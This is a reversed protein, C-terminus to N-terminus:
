PAARSRGRRTRRTTPGTPFWPTLQWGHVHLHVLSFVFRSKSSRQVRGSRRGSRSGSPSRRQRIWRSARGRSGPGKLSSLVSMLGDGTPNFFLLKGSLLRTPGLGLSQNGGRPTYSIDTRRTSASARERAKSRAARRAASSRRDEVEEEEVVGVEGSKPEGLVEEWGRGEAALEGVTRAGEGEGEGEDM